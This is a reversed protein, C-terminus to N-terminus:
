VNVGRRATNTWTVNPACLVPASVGVMVWASLNTFPAGFKEQHLFIVLGAKKVTIVNPAMIRVFGRKVVTNNATVLQKRPAPKQLADETPM